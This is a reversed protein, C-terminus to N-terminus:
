KGNKIKELKPKIVTLCVATVLLLLIVIFAGTFINKSLIFSPNSLAEEGVENVISLMNIISPSFIIGGVTLPIINIIYKLMIWKHKFFGWQTFRSFIIGTIFTIINTPVIILLDIYHVALLIESLNNKNLVVTLLFLGVVSAGIWISASLIHITKVIKYGKSSLKMPLKDKRESSARNDNSKNKSNGGANIRNVLNGMSAKGAVENKQVGTATIGNNEINKKM